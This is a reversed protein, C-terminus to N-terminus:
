RNLNFNEQKSLYEVIKKNALGNPHFDTPHVTYKQLSQDNDFARVADFCSIAYQQCTLALYNHIPTFPYEGKANKYLLPYFVIYFNKGNTKALLNMAGLLQNTKSLEEGNKEFSYMDLYNQITPKTEKKLISAQKILRFIVSKSLFKEISNEEKEVNSWRINQFDMILKQQSAINESMLVDNINYFYIITDIKPNEQILLSLRNYMYIVGAASQGFNHFNTQPFKQSLFYGLTDEEKVGEGFTFSDGILAAQKPRDPFFGTKRKETDYFVCYRKQGKADTRVSEFHNGNDSPYCNGWRLGDEDWTKGTTDGLSTLKAIAFESTVFMLILSLLLLGINIFQNKFKSM